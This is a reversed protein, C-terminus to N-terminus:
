AARSKRKAVFAIAGLGLLMMGYTEPEPVPAAVTYTYTVHGIGSATTAFKTLVGTGGSKTGDAILSFNAQVNGTGTFLEFSGSDLVVDTSLNKEGALIATLSTAKHATGAGSFVTGGTSGLLLSGPGTLTMTANLTGNVAKDARTNANSALLQGYVVSSYEIEISSLAGLTSDFQKIDLLSAINTPTGTFATIDYTVTDAMAPAAFAGAAVCIAAAAFNKLKM